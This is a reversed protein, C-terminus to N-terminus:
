MPCLVNKHIRRTLNGCFRADSVIRSPQELLAADIYLVYLVYQAELLECM